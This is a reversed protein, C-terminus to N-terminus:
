HDSLWLRVLGALYSWLSGSMKVSSCVFNFFFGNMIYAWHEM